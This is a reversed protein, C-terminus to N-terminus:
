SSSYTTTENNEEKQALQIQFEKLKNVCRVEHDINENDKEANYISALLGQRGKKKKGEYASFNKLIGKKKQM